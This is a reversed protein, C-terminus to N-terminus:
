VRIRNKPVFSMPPPLDDTWMLCERLHVPILSSLDRLQERSLPSRECFFPHKPHRSFYGFFIASRDHCRPPRGRHYFKATDCFIVTGAKGTCSTYWQEGFRSVLKQRMEEHHYIQYKLDLDELLYRNVEPHVCEFPGDDLEVDTLYIAVKIMKWDEKDRHWKRPGASQDNALSYYFSLADYAVPLQLYHEIIRLLRENAGWQLIQPYQILEDAQATLTHRGQNEDCKARAALIKTINDAVQLLEQSHPLNLEDLSTIYLGTQNLAELIGQDAPDLPPLLSQHAQIAEQYRPKLLREEVPSLNAVAFALHSPISWLEQLLRDSLYSM